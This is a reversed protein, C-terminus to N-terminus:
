VCLCACVCARVHVGVCLLPRVSPVRDSHGSTLPLLPSPNTVSHFRRSRGLAARGSSVLGRGTQLGLPFRPGLLGAPPPLLPQHAHEGDAGAVVAVAAAEAGGLYPPRGTGSPRVLRPCLPGRGM